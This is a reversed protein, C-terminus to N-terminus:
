DHKPIQIVHLHTLTSLILLNDYLFSYGTITENSDLQVLFQPADRTKTVDERRRYIFVHKSAEVIIAWPRTFLVFRRNFKSAQVFSIANYTLSHVAEPGSATDQIRYLLADEAHSLVLDLSETESTLFPGVYRAEESKWLTRDGKISYKILYLTYIEEEEGMQEEDDQIVSAPERSVNENADEVSPEEYPVTDNDTTEMSKGTKFHTNSGIIIGDQDIKTILPRTKSTFSSLIECSTGKIQLLHIIFSNRQGVDHTKIQLLAVLYGDEFSRGDLLRLFSSDRLGHHVKHTTNLANNIIEIVDGPGRLLLLQDDGLVVLSPLIPSHEWLDDGPLVEMSISEEGKEICHVAHKSDFFFFVPQSPHVFLSNLSIRYAMTQLQGSHDLFACSSAASAPLPESYYPVKDTCLKYNEFSPNLLTRNCRFRLLVPTKDTMTTM